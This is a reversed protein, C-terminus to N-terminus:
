SWLNFRILLYVTSFALQVFSTLFGIKTFESFSLKIGERKLASMVMVCVAGSFPTSAGGLNTGLVLASWVPTLDPLQLGTIIPTYTLAIAINSVFASAIGSTWLTILVAILQNGGSFNFIWRSTSALLGTKEVGGIILFFGGIFFITEWDLKKFIESPDVGSIALALIACGLAVAEPGVNWIDYIFFLFLFLALIFLSKRFLNRDKIVEWPNYQPPTKKKGLRPKFYIYLIISTLIWLIVECLTLYNIFEVFSLGSSIAIVMNSISGIMTSVGGLNVMIASSVFYPVPDYDLIRAITGAAAAILLIATVDSLFLSVVAATFCISFFLKTPNGGALKITYLSLVHFIGSEEAVEIVVMVGVLLALIKMDVFALAENYNFLGYSLGFWVSLLGGTLAAVSLTVIETAALLITFLYILIFIVTTTEIM